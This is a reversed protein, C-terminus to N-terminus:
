RRRITFHITHEIKRRGLWLLVYYLAVAGLSVLAARGETWGLGLGILLTGLLVVLAGVYALVVAVVGMRRQVGVTVSEGTGYDVDTAVPVEVIKENAEGMGCAERARCAACASGVVIRVFVRGREVREVVGNHEIVGAM